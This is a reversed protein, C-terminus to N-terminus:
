IGLEKEYYKVTSTVALATLSERTVEKNGRENLVQAILKLKNWDNKNVETRSILVTTKEESM